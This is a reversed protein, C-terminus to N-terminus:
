GTRAEPQRIRQDAMLTSRGPHINQDTSKRTYIAAIM